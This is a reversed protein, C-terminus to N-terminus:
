ASKATKFNAIATKLEHLIDSEKPYKNSLHNLASEAADILPLGANYICDCGSIFGDQHGREYVPVDEEFMNSPIVPNRKKALIEFNKM